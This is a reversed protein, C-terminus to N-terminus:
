SLTKFLHAPIGMKKVFDKLVRTILLHKVNWAGDAESNKTDQLIYQETYREQVVQMGNFELSEKSIMGRVHYYLAMKEANHMIAIVYEDILSRSRSDTKMQASCSMFGNDNLWQRLDQLVVKSEPISLHLNKVLHGGLFVWFADDITYQRAYGSQFGGLPDPHLFERSWRKWKALNIQLKESLNRNAYYQM